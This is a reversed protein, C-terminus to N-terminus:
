KGFALIIATLVQVQSFEENQLQSQAKDFHPLTPRLQWGQTSIAWVLFQTSGLVSLPGWLSSSPTQAPLPTHCIVRLHPTKRPASPSLTPPQPTITM